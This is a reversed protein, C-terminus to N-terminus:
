GRGEERGQEPWSEEMMKLVPWSCLGRPVRCPRGPSHVKVNREVPSPPSVVTKVVNCLLLMRECENENHPYERVQEFSHRCEFGSTITKPLTKECTCIKWALRGSVSHIWLALLELSSLLYCLVFIFWFLVLLGFYYFILVFSKCFLNGEQFPQWYIRM